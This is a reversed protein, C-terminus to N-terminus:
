IKIESQTKNTTEINPSRKLLKWLLIGLCRLDLNRWVTKILYISVKCRAIKLDIMKTSHRKQESTQDEVTKKYENLTSFPAREVKFWASGLLTHLKYILKRCWGKNGPISWEKSAKRQWRCWVKSSQRSKEM